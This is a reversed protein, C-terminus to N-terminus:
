SVTDDFLDETDAIDQANKLVDYCLLFAKFAADAAYDDETKGKVSRWVAVGFGYLAPQNNVMDVAARNLVKNLEEGQYGRSILNGKWGEIMDTTVTPLPM